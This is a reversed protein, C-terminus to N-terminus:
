GRIYELVSLLLNKDVTCGGGGEGKAFGNWLLIGIEIMDIGKKNHERILAYAASCPTTELPRQPESPIESLGIPNDSPTSSFSDWPFSQCCASAGPMMSFSDLSSAAALLEFGLGYGDTLLEDEGVPITTKTAVTDSKPISSPLVDYGNGKQASATNEPPAEPVSPLLNASDTVEVGSRDEALRADVLAHKVGALALMQRLRSNEEELRGITQQLAADAAYPPSRADHEYVQRELEAVYDRRQARSRRQNNRVRILNADDKGVKPRPM